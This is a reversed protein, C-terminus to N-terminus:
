KPVARLCHTFWLLTSFLVLSGGQHMVGLSVPVYHLLTLVGLASQGWVSALVLHAANRIRPGTQAVSVRMVSVWLATAVAVTSYALVRHVFQVGTPNNVLNSLASGYQPSILDTPIWRDAM